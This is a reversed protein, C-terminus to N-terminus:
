NNPDPIEIFYVNNNRSIDGFAESLSMDEHLELLFVFSEDVWRINTSTNIDYLYIYCLRRIWCRFLFTIDSDSLTIMNKKSLDNLRTNVDSLGYHEPIYNLSNNCSLNIQFACRSVGDEHYYKNLSKYFYKLVKITDNEVKLYEEINKVGHNEIFDAIDDWTRSNLADDNEFRTM